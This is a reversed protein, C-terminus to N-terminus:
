DLVRWGRGALESRLRDASAPLVSVEALGVPQGLGHELHLDELNVGIEGMETLLRGLSGPTDPVLVGIVAYATPASGHKGPLRAHGLNGAEIAHGIVGLAGDGRGSAPGAMADLAGLVAALDESVERLVDRVAAANGQLIQTWLRPDSAAIRVTDRLGQGALGLEHDPLTVLRAALLSAVVQPAHSVTAVARDHDEVQMVTVVGGVTRGLTAVSEIVEPDSLETPIVVWARGEFLEGRAALAGSRERGAMPHSGVYRDLPLPDNGTLEAFAARGLLEARIAGKVSAVDTVVSRPWRRLVAAVTAAVVDPPTAVVVVEPDLPDGDDAVRGAGLDAALHRATPSADDLTVRYGKRSLAIGLSTGILGTGIIHVSPPAASM